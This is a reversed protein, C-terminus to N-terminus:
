PHVAVDLLGMQMARGHVFIPVFSDISLGVRRHSAAQAPGPVGCNFGRLTEALGVCRRWAPMLLGEQRVYDPGVTAVCM